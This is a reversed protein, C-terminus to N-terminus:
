RGAGGGVVVLSDHGSSVRRRGAVRDLRLPVPGQEHASVTPRPPVPIPLTQQRANHFPPVRRRLPPDRLPPPM